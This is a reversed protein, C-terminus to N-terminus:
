PGLRRALARLAPWLARRAAASARLAAPPPALVVDIAEGPEAGFCVCPLDPRPAGLAIAAPDLGLALALHRLLPGHPGDFGGDEALVFAVRPAGTGARRGGAMARDARLVYLDVGMLALARHRLAVPLASM